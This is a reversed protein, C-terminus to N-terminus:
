FIFPSFLGVPGLAQPSDHKKSHTYMHSTTHTRTEGERDYLLGDDIYCDDTVVRRYGFFRYVSRLSFLIM